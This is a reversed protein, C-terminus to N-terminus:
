ILFFIQVKDGAATASTLTVAKTQGAGAGAKVSLAGAPIVDAGADIAASAEFEHVGSFDVTCINDNTNVTRLVGFFTADAAALVVTGNVDVTVLKDIDATTLSADAPM